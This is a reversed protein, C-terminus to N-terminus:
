NNLLVIIWYGECSWLQISDLSYLYVDSQSEYIIIAKPM